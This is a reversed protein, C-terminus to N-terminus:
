VLRPRALIMFVSLCNGTDLPMIGGRERSSPMEHDKAADRSLVVGLDWAVRRQDDAPWHHLRVPVLDSRPFSQARLMRLATSLDSGNGPPPAPPAATKLLGRSSSQDRERRKRLSRSFIKLGQHRRALKIGPDSSPWTGFSCESPRTATALIGRMNGAHQTAQRAYVVRPRV